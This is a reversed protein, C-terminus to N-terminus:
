IEMRPPARTLHPETTGGKRRLESRCARSSAPWRYGPPWRSGGWHTALRPHAVLPFDLADLVAAYEPCAPRSLGLGIPHSGRAQTKIMNNLVAMEAHVRSAEAPRHPPVSAEVVRLQTIITFNNTTIDNHFDKLMAALTSPQIRNFHTYLCPQKAAIRQGANPM